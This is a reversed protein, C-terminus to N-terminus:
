CRQAHAQFLNDGHEAVSQNRETLEGMNLGDEDVATQTDELHTIWIQLDEALDEPPDDIQNLLDLREDIDNHIGWPIPGMFIGTALEPDSDLVTCFDGTEDSQCATLAGAITVGILPLLLLKRKCIM